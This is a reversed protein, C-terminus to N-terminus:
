RWRRLLHWPDPKGVGGQEIVSEAIFAPAAEAFLAAGMAHGVAIWRLSTGLAAAEANWVAQLSGFFPLAFVVDGLQRPWRIWVEHPGPHGSALRRHLAERLIDTGRRALM